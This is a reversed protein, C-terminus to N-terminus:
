ELDPSLYLTGKIEATPTPKILELALLLQRSVIALDSGQDVERDAQVMSAIMVAKLKEDMRTVMHRDKHMRVTVQLVGPTPM